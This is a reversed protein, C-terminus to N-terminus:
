VRGEGSADKNAAFFERSRKAVAGDVALHENGSDPKKHEFGDPGGAERLLDYCHGPSPEGDFVEWKVDSWELRAKQTSRDVAKRFAHERVMGIKADKSHQEYPRDRDEESLRLSNAVATELAEDLDDELRDVSDELDRIQRRDEARQQSHRALQEQLEDIRDQQEGVKALARQAVTIADEPTVDQGDSM